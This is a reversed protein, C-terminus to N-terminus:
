AHGDARDKLVHLAELEDHVEKDQRDEKEGSREEREDVKGERQLQDRADIWKCVAYISEATGQGSCAVKADAEVCEDEANEGRNEQRRAGIEEGSNLSSIGLGLLM